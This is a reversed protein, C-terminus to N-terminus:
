RFAAKEIRISDRHNFLIEGNNGGTRSRILGRM